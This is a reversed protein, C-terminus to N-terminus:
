ILQRFNDQKGRQKDMWITVMSLASSYTSSMNSKQMCVPMWFCISANLPIGILIVRLNYRKLM